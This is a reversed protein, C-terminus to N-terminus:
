IAATKEILTFTLPEAGSGRCWRGKFLYFWTGSEGTDLDRVVLRCDTQIELDQLNKLGYHTLCEKVSDFAVAGDDNKAVGLIEYDDAGQNYLNYSGTVRMGKELKNGRIMKM